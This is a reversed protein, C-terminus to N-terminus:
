LGRVSRKYEDVLSCYTMAARKEELSFEPSGRREYLILMINQCTPRTGAKQPEPRSWWRLSLLLQCVCRSWLIWLNMHLSQQHFNYAHRLWRVELVIEDKEKGFESSLSSCYWICGTSYEADKRSDM